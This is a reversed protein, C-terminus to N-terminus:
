LQYHPPSVCLAPKLEVINVIVFKTAFFLNPIFCIHINMKLSGYDCCIIGAYLSMFCISTNRLYM